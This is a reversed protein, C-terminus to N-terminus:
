FGKAREDLTIVGTQRAYYKAMDVEPTNTIRALEGKITKRDDLTFALVSSDLPVSTIMIGKSHGWINMMHGLEHEIVNIYAQERDRADKEIRDGKIVGVKKFGRFPQIGFGEVHKTEWATKADAFQARAPGGDRIGHDLM